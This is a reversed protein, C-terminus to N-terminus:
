KPLFEPNIVAFADHPLFCARSLDRGSKDVELGYTAKIYQSVADFYKGHTEANAATRIIWKLGTGSPSRFLLMTELNTDGLLDQKTKAWNELDDFDLCMLGSYSSLASDKRETFVGSFTCYDFHKAKFERAEKADTIERLSATREVFYRGRIV